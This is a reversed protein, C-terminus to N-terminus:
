LKMFSTEDDFSRQRITLSVKNGFNEFNMLRIENLTRQFKKSQSRFLM